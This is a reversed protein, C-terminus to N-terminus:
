SLFGKWTSGKEDRLIVVMSHSIGTLRRGRADRFRYTVSNDEAREASGVWTNGMDDTLKIHDDHGYGFVRARTKEEELHFFGGTSPTRRPRYHM